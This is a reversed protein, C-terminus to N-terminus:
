SASSGPDGGMDGAPMFTIVSGVTGGQALPGGSVILATRTEGVVYDWSEAHISRELASRDFTTGMGLDAVAGEPVIAGYGAMYSENTGLPLELIARAYENAFTVRGGPDIIVVAAQISDMVGLLMEHEAQAAKVAGQLSRMRQDVWILYYAYALLPFFIIGIFDEIMDLSSTVGLHELFNSFMGFAASFMALMILAAATKPIKPTSRSRLAFAAGVVISGAFGFFGILDSIAVVNM